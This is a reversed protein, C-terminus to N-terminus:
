RRLTVPANAVVTAVLDDLAAAFEKRAVVENILGM